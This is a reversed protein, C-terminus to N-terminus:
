ISAYRVTGRQYDSFNVKVVYINQHKQGNNALGFRSEINLWPYEYKEKTTM